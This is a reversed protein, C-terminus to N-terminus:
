RTVHMPTAPSAKELSSTRGFKGGMEKCLKSQTSTIPKSGLNGSKEKSPERNHM